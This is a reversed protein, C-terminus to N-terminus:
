DMLVDAYPDKYFYRDDNNIRGDGNLDAFAGEIPRGQHDYIQKYTTVTHLKELKMDKFSPELVLEM